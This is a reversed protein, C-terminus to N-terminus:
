SLPNRHLPELPRNSPTTQLLTDQPFSTIRGRRTLRKLLAYLISSRCRRGPSRGSRGGKLHDLRKMPTNTLGVSPKPMKIQASLLLLLDLPYLRAEYYLERDVCEYFITIQAM